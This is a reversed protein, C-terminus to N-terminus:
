RFPNFFRSRNVFFSICLSLIFVFASFAIAAADSRNLPRESYWTRKKEKGFGRLDMTNSITEIRDLTSFILPVFINMANKIRKFPKEKKSLDLGRTQQAAAIDQYDRILDPFYRLTLSFAYAAKYPVGIRNVSAAFESPNTCLFFIIGLPVVAAYKVTKTIQYLLQEQTLVYSGAFKYIDHRTGYIETGYLPSFLFTLVFNIALFVAVYILMLRIQSFAIDAIRILVLSFVVLAAIFRIDYSFMVAFTMCLFGFLKSFGSLKYVFNDREIYDFLKAKM